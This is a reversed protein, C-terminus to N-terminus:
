RRRAGPRQLRPSSGAPPCRARVHRTLLVPITLQRHCDMVDMGGGDDIGVRFNVHGAFDTRITHKTRIDFQAFPATQKRVDGDFPWCLDTFVIPEKGEARDAHRRLVKSVGAFGGAELDAVLVLNALKDRNVAARDLAAPQRAHATVHQHHGVGVDRMIALDPVVDDEGIGRGQSPVDRDSLPSHHSRKARHMVEDANSSVGEDAAASRDRPVNQRKGFGRGRSVGMGVAEVSDSQLPAAEAFVTDALNVMGVFKQQGGLEISRLREFSQLGFRVAASSTSMSIPNM